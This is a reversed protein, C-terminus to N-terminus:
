ILQGAASKISAHMRRAFFRTQRRNIARGLAAGVMFPAMMLLNRRGRGVLKRRVRHAALRRVAALYDAREQATIATGRAWATVWLSAKERVTGPIEIGYLAHLEATLRIEILAIAATEATIKAPTGLLSPPMAYQVSAVLGGGIGIRGSNKVARAILRRAIEDVEFGPYLALLAARDRIALRQAM